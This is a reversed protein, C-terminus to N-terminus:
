ASEFESGETSTSAQIISTEQEASKGGKLHLHYTGGFRQNMYQSCPAIDRLIVIKMGVATLVEFEWNDINNSQNHYHCFLTWFL